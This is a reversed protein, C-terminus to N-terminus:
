RIELVLDGPELKTGSPAVIRTVTGAVPATIRSEMKMAEITAVVEGAAVEADEDISVSVVGTMLAAVDGPQDPDAQERAPRGPDISRDRIEIPRPQGNVRCWLTRVGRDDADAVADLEILLQKGPELDITVEDGPTLGYFFVRTPLRWLEGHTDRMQVYALAPGPLVLETVTARRTDPDALRATQDDDLVDAAPVGRTVARSRLPEPWGFPPEGLDGELFGLVSGPLDAGLPDAVIEDATRGSSLLYLALDGVVKSTPTVKILGGLLEDAIVYADALEEFREGLGLGEAQQRLNSLQGGPIRHRYVDGTPARLGADFPAYLSRLSEVFPELRIVEALDLDTAREHHALAAVLASLSPQSTGGALPAAAADVADVGAEVAALYTALQGGATDHTHLHVPQPFRERLATVLLAAAPPRLVGAMDKICLVHAGAADLQEAVGLYHDLTYRDEGPDALDGTYCLTGEALAGVDRVAKIADVMRFPDNQADFVRFVDVGAVAAERVFADVVAPPYNSYGVANAGRLLMQLAVNPVAVRLRELRDWPDEHLFRLAADFTAGGWVELSLAGRLARALHPALALLDVTRVRTALISQHADRLTTDTVGVARQDRLWTAFAEPGDAQLRDRTGAPPPVRPDIPPLKAHVDVTTPRSGHPQHVTVDGIFSLLRSTRDRGVDGRTLHPRDDVFSTDLHGAALDPDDLVALLFGINTDVGRIRFERLARSARRTAAPLDPGRATLKVLMPDFYPSVVAGVFEAAADLRIGAGAASRYTTITGTDPRFGDAPNETTIRCQVATGRVQIRDQTLKLEALTAGSAIRLQSQVLDVDTIEETVTHEVQIRPNMEIFVHEGTSTDVLFEVTGANRYDVQRAFALADTTLRERLAPDLNPAPAVELLKQHRRQISCDREYLHVMDGTADALVQVEIHRPRIMAKELFVTSDGFSGAAERRATAVAERLDEPREVRRLGRGGGGGAAKVFVPYGIREAEAPADDEHEIPASADLVPVGAEIGLRRATVKDGTLELVRPPPGVFTIGAAECAAALVPSESLFGYGPYLADAGSRIAADVLADADLYGALPRDPPGIEYAEDAKFRHLADRDPRTYVAVTRLGLEVSARLARVAIEGRNAVLVKQV